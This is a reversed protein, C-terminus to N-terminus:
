LTARSHGSHAPAGSLSARRKRRFDVSRLRAPLSRKVSARKKESFLRAIEQSFRALVSPLDQIASARASDIGILWMGLVEGSHILPCLYEDEPSPAEPLFGRVQVPNGGALAASFVPADLTREKEQLEEFRCNIAKIGVLRETRPVREFFAMRGIDLTQHVMSAIHDWFAESLLPDEPCFREKIQNLSRLRLENLARNSMRTKFVLTVAYQGVQALVLAGLPLWIRLFWFVSGAALALVLVLILLFPVPPVRQYLLSGVLALGTLLALTLVGPCRDSPM